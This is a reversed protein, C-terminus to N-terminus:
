WASQLEPRASLLFISRLSDTQETKTSVALCNELIAMGM